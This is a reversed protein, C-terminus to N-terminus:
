RRLYSDLIHTSQNAILKNSNRCRYSKNYPVDQGEYINKYFFYLSVRVLMMFIISIILLNYIGSVQTSSEIFKILNTQYMVFVFYIISILLLTEFSVLM